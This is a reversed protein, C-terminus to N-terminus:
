QNETARLSGYEEKTYIAVEQLFSSVPLFRLNKKGAEHLYIGDPQVFTIRYLNRKTPADKLGDLIGMGGFQAFMGIHNNNINYANGIREMTNETIPKINYPLGCV